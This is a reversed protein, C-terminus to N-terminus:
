PNRRPSLVKRLPAFEIISNRIGVFWADIVLPAVAAPSEFTTEGSWATACGPLGATVGCCTRFMSMSSVSRVLQVAAPSMVGALGPLRDTAPLCTVTSRAPVFAAVIRCM